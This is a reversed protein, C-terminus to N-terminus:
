SRQFVKEVQNQSSQPSHINEKKLNKKLWNALRHNVFVYKYKNGLGCLAQIGRSFVGRLNFAGLM